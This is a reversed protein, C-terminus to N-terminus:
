AKSNTCYFVPLVHKNVNRLACSNLSRYILFPKLKYGAANGGLLLTVREKSVEFGPMSKDEKYFYTRKPM